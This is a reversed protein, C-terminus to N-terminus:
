GIGPRVMGTQRVYNAIALTMVGEDHEGSEAEYRKRAAGVRGGIARLKFSQCDALVRRSNVRLERTCLARDLEELMRPRTRADTPFGFRFDYTVSGAADARAHRYIRAYEHARRAHEVAVDGPGGMEPAWLAEGYPLCLNRITWDTFLPAPIHGWAEAVVENSDVDLVLSLSPDGTGHGVGFDSAVLYEHDPLPPAYYLIAGNHRPAWEGRDIPPRAHELQWRLADADFFATGPQIWCSVEDEPFEQAFLHRLERKVRRRWAIRFVREAGVIAFRDLLFREEESLTAEVERFEDPTIHLDQCDDCEFHSVFVRNWDNEGKVSEHWLEYAVDDTGDPTFLLRFAGYRFAPLVGALFRRQEEVTPMTEKVRPVEDWVGEAFGRGRVGGAVSAPKTRISCGTEILELARRNEPNRLRPRARDPLLDFSKRVKDHFTEVTDEENANIYLFDKNRETVGRILLRKCLKESGGGRRPKICLDRPPRKSEACRAENDAIKRAFARQVSNDFFPIQKGEDTVILVYREQWQDISLGERLDPLSALASVPLSPRRGM